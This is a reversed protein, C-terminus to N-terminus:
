GVVLRPPEPESITPANRGIPLEIRFIAGHGPANRASIRGGHVEVVERAIALGLGAGKARAHDGVQYFKEFIHPLKDDPIGPGTDEVEVFLVEDDARARLVIRGDEPTFKVANSILNGLVQDRLRDGDGHITDPLHSDLDFSFAIGKQEALPAFSRRVRTFVDDLDVEKMQIRLGGAELRSIDLLQNVLSSLLRAQDRVAFLAEDQRDNVEGYVREQLLEAYGSIVNLPTKLEHTAISMFEAKMRDLEALRHTMSRFSRSVSGIEDRRGYPLDEPVRFRGDAVAAMANELRTVPRTLARNTRAGLILALTLCILLAAVTTTTATNSIADAELLRAASEAEIRAAISAATAQAENYLPRVDDSSYDTAEQRLDAAMLAEIRDTAASLADVSRGAEIALNSYGTSALEYLKARVSDLAERMVIRSSDDGRVIFSRQLADLRALRTQLGGTALYAAGQMSRQDKAIEAIDVLQRVGWVAPFFLLATIAVLSLTLRARLTM